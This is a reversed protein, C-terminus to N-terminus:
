QENVPVAHVAGGAEEHLPSLPSLVAHLLRAYQAYVPPPHETEAESGVLQEASLLSLVAHPVTPNQEYVPLPHVAAVAAVQPAKLSSLILQPVVAPHVNVPEPQVAGAADTHAAAFPLEERQPVASPAPAVLAQVNEPPHEGGAAEVQEADFLSAVTLLVVAPHLNLPLPHVALAPSAVVHM